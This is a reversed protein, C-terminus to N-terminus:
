LFNQDSRIQNFPKIQNLNPWIGMEQFSSTALHGNWIKWRLGPFPWIGMEYKGGKFV